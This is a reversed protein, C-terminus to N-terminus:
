NLVFLFGGDKALCQNIFHIMEFFKTCFLIFSVLSGALSESLPLWQFFVLSPFLFQFGLGFWGGVAWELSDRLTKLFSVFYSFLIYFFM